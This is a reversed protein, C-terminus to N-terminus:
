PSDFSICTSEGSPTYTLQVAAPASCAMWDAASTGYNKEAYSKAATVADAICPSSGSSCVDNPPYLVNAAALASADAANQSQRRSDRANGLDIVVAACLVLVVMLIAVIVTVAGREESSRRPRWMRKVFVM